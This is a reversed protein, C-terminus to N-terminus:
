RVDGCTCSPQFGHAKYHNKKGFNSGDRSYRQLYIIFQNTWNKRKVHILESWIEVTVVTSPQFGAGTSLYSRGNNTPNKCALLIEAMLLIKAPCLGPQSWWAENNGTTSNWSECSNSSLGSTGPHSSLFENPLESWGMVGVKKGLSIFM